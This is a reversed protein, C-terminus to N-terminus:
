PKPRPLFGNTMADSWARSIARPAGDLPRLVVEARRSTGTANGPPVLHCLESANRWTPAPPTTSNEYKASDKYNAVAGSQIPTVDGTALSLVAVEGSSGPLAVHRGDPSVAFRDIRNPLKPRAADAVVREISRAPGPRLAFLTLEHATEVAPLNLEGSVFLIRGDPLCAVRHHAQAFLIGALDEADPLPALLTGAADRVARWTLTGLQAQKELMAFPVTTKQYVLAQGDPTWAAQAAGEDVRVPESGDQATLVYLAPREPETLVYAITRGDPSPRASSIVDVSRLLVQETAAADPVVRCVVLEYIAASASDDDDKMTEKLLPAMETPHRARLYSLVLSIGEGFSGSGGSLSYNAAFSLREAWEKFRPDDDGFKAWDGRYSRILDLLEDSARIMAQAREVGLLPAIENWDKAKVTRVALVRQSDPMWAEVQVSTRSGLAAFPQGVIAGTPDVLAIVEGGVLLGHQGDPSWLLFETPDNCGAFILALLCAATLPLKKFPNM